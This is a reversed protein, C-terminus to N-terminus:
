PRVRRSRPASARARSLRKCCGSVAISGGPHLDALVRSAAIEVDLISGKREAARVRGVEEVIGTFM